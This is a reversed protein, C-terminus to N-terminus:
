EGEAVDDDDFLTPEDGNGLMAMVPSLVAMSLAVIAATWVPDLPYNGLIIPLQAIIVGIVGQVITRLCRWKPENSTLFQNM